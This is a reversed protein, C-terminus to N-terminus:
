LASKEESIFVSFIEQSFHARHLRLFICREFICMSALNGLFYAAM